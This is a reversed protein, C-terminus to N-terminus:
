NKLVQKKLEQIEKVLIGILGIYNVTQTEEGDKEGSVLFPYLEQIEHALFGIDRKETLENWYHVPRLQDVTYQDNLPEVDRKIRYDSTINYSNAYVAGQVRLTQIDLSVSSTDFLLQNTFVSQSPVISYYLGYSTTNIFSLATMYKGDNSMCVSLFSGQINNISLSSWTNGYDLSFLCTSTTDNTDYPFSTYSTNFSFQYKGNSTMCFSNSNKGVTQKMRFTNGYDSSVYIYSTSSLTFVTIYQGTASVMITYANPLSTMAWNTGGNNSVYIGNTTTIAQYIGSVSMSLSNISETLDHLVINGYKWSTGYDSSYYIRNTNHCTIYKGDNSIRITTNGDQSSSGSVPFSTLPLWSIGYDLSRYIYCVNSSHYSFVVVQGNGTTSISNPHNNQSSLAYLFSWNVGYNKSTYINNSSDIMYQYNGNSSMCISSYTYKYLTSSLPQIFLSSPITPSSFWNIGISSYNIDPSQTIQLSEDPFHIYGNTHIGDNNQIHNSIVFDSTINGSTRLSGSIDIMWNNNMNYLNPFFCNFISNTNSLLITNISPMAVSVFTNSSQILSSGNGSSNYIDSEIYKWQNEWLYLIYPNNSVDNTIAIASSENYLYINHISLDTGFTFRNDLTHTMNSVHITTDITIFTITDPSSVLVNNKYVSMESYSQSSGGYITTIGTSITNYQIIRNSTSDSLYIYNSYGDIAVFTISTGSSDVIYTPTINSSLDYGTFSSSSFSFLNTTGDNTTLPSGIFYVIYDTNHKTIYIDDIQNIDASTFQIKAWQIGGNITYFMNGDTSGIMSLSSDYVYSSTFTHQGQLFTLNNMVDTCQIPYLNWSNGFDHSVYSDYSYKIYSGNGINSYSGVAVLYNPQERSISMSHITFPLSDYQIIKGNTIRIPGNIDMSYQETTPFYTNIGITSPYYKNHNSVITHSPQFVNDEGMYGIMGMSRSTDNPYAGGGISIGTNTNPTTIHLFTNSSNDTSVLTLANGTYVTPTQYITNLFVGSSIDYIIATENYLHNSEGRHSCVSLKSQIITNDETNITITKGGIYDSQYTIHQQSNGSGITNNVNNPTYIGQRIINNQSDAICLSNSFIALGIPSSFQSINGYGNTNGTTNPIGAITIVTYSGNTPILKRIVNNGTDSVFINNSADITIGTPFCFQAISGSGDLWGSIGASGAITTITYNTTDMKRIVHNYSDTIYINKDGDIALSHPYYFRANVGSADICGSTDVMGAITTINWSSDLQQQTAMRIVNNCTDAIYIKMSLTDIVIGHPYNFQASSGNGNAWGSTGASGAITTLNWSSDQTAMRICHNNTDAIYLHNANDMTMGMPHNFATLISHVSIGTGDQFGYYGPTGLISSVTFTINNSTDTTKVVQRLVDSDLIYFGNISNIATLIFSSNNLIANTGSGDLTNQFGNGVITSIIYTNEDRNYFSISSTYDTSDVTIGYHNINQAITNKNELQNTYINLVQTKNGYIDLTTQPTTNNIGINGNLGYLYADDGGLYLQERLLGTGNVYINGSIDSDGQLYINNNAYIDGFVSLDESISANEQVFLNGSIDFNGQYSNTISLSDCILSHTKINNSYEYRNTGGYQKWSM